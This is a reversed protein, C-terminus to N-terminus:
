PKLNDASVLAANVFFERVLIESGRFQYPTARAFMSDGTALTFAKIDRNAVKIQGEQFLYHGLPRSGMTNFVTKERRYLDQPIVTRAFVMVQGRCLLEVDRVRVAQHNTLGLKLAEYRSPLKWGERLVNVKFEGDSFAVLKSTLSGESFLWSRWERPVKSLSEDTMAHWGNCFPAGGNVPDFLTQYDQLDPM